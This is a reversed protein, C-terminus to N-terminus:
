PASGAGPRGAQRCALATIAQAMVRTMRRRLDPDAITAAHAAAEALAEPSPEIRVLGKEHDRIGADSGASAVEGVRLQIDTVLTGGAAEAIKDLLKPKLFTLQQLWVSNEVILVLKKFRIQEPRTHAAIQAGAIEAWRRKLHAELLKTELGLRKAIGDLIDSVSAFPSLKRM